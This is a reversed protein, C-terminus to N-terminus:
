NQHEIYVKKGSLATLSDMKHTTDSTAPLLMYLKYRVSDSTEVQVNWDIDKLQAYRRAARKPGCVELVYKYKEVPNTITQKVTDAAPKKIQSSDVLLPTQEISNGSVLAEGGDTHRNSILYGALIALGIGAVILLSVVPKKWKSKLVPTALFAQYKADVNEKRSVAPKDKDIIDTKLKTTVTHGPTFEYEGQKIRVLTGIGDFSFPKNINLFQQVVQIHSDLDSEALVKMKGSKTSIYNVLDAVDRISPNSQFRIGDTVPNNKSKEDIVASQDLLFTGIGPLDLRKNAYLYQALLSAIKLTIPILQM